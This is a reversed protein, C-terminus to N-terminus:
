TRAKLEGLYVTHPLPVLVKLFCINIFRTIILIFHKLNINQLIILHLNFKTM